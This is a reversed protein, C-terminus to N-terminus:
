RLIFTQIHSSFRQQSIKSSQDKVKVVKAYIYLNNHWGDLTANFKVHFFKVRLPIFSTPTRPHFIIKAGLLNLFFIFRIERRPNEWEYQTLSHFLDIKLYQKLTM